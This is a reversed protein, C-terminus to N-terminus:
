ALAKIDALSLQGPVVTVPVPFGGSARGAALSAVLPGPAQPAISAGLVLLAIDEDEAIVKVTEEALRGERIVDETEINEFGALSLKRRFLRFLAKAKATEEELQVQHVNAWHQLEGPEIVYLMVISGSSRQVRCAAYYLACEVEQSEDVVILLKRRHGEEFSRRPKM